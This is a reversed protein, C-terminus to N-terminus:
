ARAMSNRETRTPVTAVLVVKIMAIMKEYENGGWKPFGLDHLHDDRIRGALVKLEATGM